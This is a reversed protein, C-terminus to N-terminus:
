EGSNGLYPKNCHPCVIESARQGYRIAGLWLELNEPRNDHRIGNIHHVSENEKLKRGIKREMVLRHEAIMKGKGNPRIFKYGNYIKEDGHTKRWGQLQKDYLHNKCWKFNVQNGNKKIYYSVNNTCNEEICEEIM